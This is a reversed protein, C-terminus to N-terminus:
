TLRSGDAMIQSPEDRTLKFDTNGNEEAHRQCERAHNGELAMWTRIDVEAEDGSVWEATLSQFFGAHDDHCGFMVTFGLADEALTVFADPVEAQMRGNIHHFARLADPYEDYSRAYFSYHM